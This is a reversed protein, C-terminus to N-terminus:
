FADESSEQAETQNKVWEIYDPSGTSLTYVVMDFKEPHAPDANVHAAVEEILEAVRSDQTVGVIKYDNTTEKGRDEARYQREATQALVEVDAALTKKFMKSMLANASQRDTM